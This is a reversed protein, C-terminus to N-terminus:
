VFFTKFQLFKKDVVIDKNHDWSLEFDIEQKLWDIEKKYLNYFESGLEVPVSIMDWKRDILNSNLQFSNLNNKALLNKLKNQNYRIYLAYMSAGPRLEDKFFTNYFMAGWIWKTMNKGFGYKYPLGIERFNMVDFYSKFDNVHKNYLEAFIKEKLEEVSQVDTYLLNYYIDEFIQKSLRPTSSKNIQGGTKKTVPNELIKGEDYFYALAYTKKVNFQIMRVAIVETKFFISQYDPDLGARTGLNEALQFGIEDNIERAMINAQEIVNPWQNKDNKNTIYIDKFDEGHETENKNQACIYLSDTDAYLLAPSQEVTEIFGKKWVTNHKM